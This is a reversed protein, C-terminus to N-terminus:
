NNLRKEVEVKFEKVARVDLENRTYKSLVPFLYYVLLDIDGKEEPMYEILESLLVRAPMISALAEYARGAAFPVKRLYYRALKRQESRKWSRHSILVLAEGCHPSSIPYKSILWEAAQESSMGFIMRCGARQKENM